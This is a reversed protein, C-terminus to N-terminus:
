ASWGGRWKPSDQIKRILDARVEDDRKGIAAIGMAILGCAFGIVFTVPVIWWLHSINIIM